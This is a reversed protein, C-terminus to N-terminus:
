KQEEHYLKLTENKKESKQWEERYTDRFKEKLFHSMNEMMENSENFPAISMSELNLTQSESAQIKEM